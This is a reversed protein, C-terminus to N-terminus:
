IQKLKTNRKQLWNQQSYQSIIEEYPGQSIKSLESTPTLHSIKIFLETNLFQLTWEAYCESIEYIHNDFFFRWKELLVEGIDVGM